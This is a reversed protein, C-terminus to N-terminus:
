SNEGTVEDLSKGAHAAKPKNVRMGRFGKKKQVVEQPAVEYTTVVLDGLNAAKHEGLSQKLRSSLKGKEKKHYGEMMSHHRYDHVLQQAEEDDRWDLVPLDPNIKTYLRNVVDTDRDWNIEPMEDAEVCEWFARTSELIEAILEDDREVTFTQDQCGGILAVLVAYEHGTVALQAQLKLQLHAPIVWSGIANKWKWAQDGAVTSIEYPVYVDGGTQDVEWAPRAGLQPLDPHLYYGEPKRIIWGERDAMEQAIIPKFAQSWQARAGAGNQDRTLLGKKYAYLLLPSAYPSVPEGGEDRHDPDTDEENDEQVREFLAPVEFADLSAARAALWRERDGYPVLLPAHRAGALEVTTSPADFPM